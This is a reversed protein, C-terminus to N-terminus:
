GQLYPLRSALAGRLPPAGLTEIRLREGRILAPARNTATAPYIGLLRGAFVPPAVSYARRLRFSLRMRALSAAGRHPAGVAQGQAGYPAPLAPAPASALTGIGHIALPFAPASAGLPALNRAESGRKIADIRMGAWLRFVAVLAGVLVAPASARNSTPPTPM